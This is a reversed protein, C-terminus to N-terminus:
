NNPGIYITDNKTMELRVLEGDMPISEVDDNWIIVPGMDAESKLQKVENNLVVTFTMVIGLVLGLCTGTIVSEIQVNKM